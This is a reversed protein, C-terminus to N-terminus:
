ATLLVYLYELVEFIGGTCYVFVLGGIILARKDYWRTNRWIKM